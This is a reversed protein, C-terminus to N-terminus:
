DNSLMAKLENIQSQLGAIVTNKSLDLSNINVQKPSKDYGQGVLIQNAEIGEIDEVHPKTLNNVVWFDGRYVLELPINAALWGAIAGTPKYSNGRSLTRRIEKYGLGNVNIYPTKLTSNRNLIVRITTGVKLETIGPIKVGYTAGDGGWTMAYEPQAYVPSNFITEGNVVTEGNFIIKGNFVAENTKKVVLANSRNDEDTGNGVILRADKDPKNYAGLIVQDQSNKDDKLFDGIARIGKGILTNDSGLVWHDTGKIKNRLGLIFTRLADIFNLRGFCFNLGVPHDGKAEETDCTVTNNLGLIGSYTTKLWNFLGGGFSNNGTITNTNGGVICGFGGKNRRGGMLCFDGSGTNEEGGILVGRGNGKNGGGVVFANIGLEVIGVDPKSPVHFTYSDKEDNPTFGAFLSDGAWTVVNNEISAITSFFQYYSVLNVSFEDGVEYAPTEFSTDLAATDTTFVPVVQENSLYIKKNKNDIAKIYYAKRGAVNNDGLSIDNEAIAVSTGSVLSNEGDGKSISAALKDKVEQSLKDLTVSGDPHDLESLLRHHQIDCKICERFPLNEIKPM